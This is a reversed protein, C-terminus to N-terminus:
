IHILSLLADVLAEEADSDKMNKKKFIKIGRKILDKSFGDGMSKLANVVYHSIEHPITDITAKGKAIEVLQNTLKGIVYKGEFKGLNAEIIKIDKYASKSEVWKVMDSIEETKMIREATESALQYSSKGSLKFQKEAAKEYLRLNSKFPAIENLRPGSELMYKFMTKLTFGDIASTIPKKDTSFSDKSDRICM